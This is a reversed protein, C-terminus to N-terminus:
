KDELQGKLRAARSQVNRKRGNRRRVCKIGQQTQQLGQQRDKNKRWYAAYQLAKIAPYACVNNLNLIAAKQFSNACCLNNEDCSHVHENGSHFLHCVTHILAEGHVDLGM